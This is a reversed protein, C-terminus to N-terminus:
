SLKFLLQISGIDIRDGDNLAYMNDIRHDNVLTGLKSGLDQIFFQGRLYAIQAHHRSIQSDGLRLNNDQSRGLRFPLPLIPITQGPSSGQMVILVAKGRQGSSSRSALLFLSGGAVTMAMIVAVTLLMVLNGNDIDAIPTMLTLVSTSVVVSYLTGSSPISQGTVNLQWTGPIPDQVLFQRLTFSDAINVSPYMRDVLRGNPDLLEALLQGELWSVDVRLTNQDETVNIPLEVTQNPLIRQTEGLIVQSGQSRVRIDLYIETLQSADEVNYLRECGVTDVMRQLFGLDVYRDSSSSVTPDGLPVIYLCVDESQWPQLAQIVENQLASRETAAIGTTPIGDSLLIVSVSEGPYSNHFNQIQATVLNVGEVMNTTGCTQLVTSANRMANLDETFSQEVQASSCFTVLSLLDRRTDLTNQREAEVVNTYANIASKAADVKIIGSADREDMSGSIDTLLITASAISSTQSLTKQQNGMQNFVIFLLFFIPLTRRSQLVSKAFQRVM